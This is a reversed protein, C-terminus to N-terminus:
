LPEGETDKLTTFLLRGAIALCEADLYNEARREFLVSCKAPFEDDADNFLMLVPVRPLLNFRMSLDYPLDIDPPHGDLSEGAGKLEKLRGSYTRSIANEVEDRFFVTLPGSDRLDRYTVWEKDEPYGTRNLLLYKFLIVCIEFSPKEDAPGTIGEKSVMYPRGFLPIIVDAGKIKIGLKQELPKCDLRNVKDLYDIYTKEFVGNRGSRKM